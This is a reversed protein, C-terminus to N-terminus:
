LVFSNAINLLLRHCLFPLAFRCHEGRAYGCHCEVVNKITKRSSNLFCLMSVFWTTSKVPKICEAQVQTIHEHGMCKHAGHKSNQDEVGESFIQFWNFLWLTIHKIKWGYSHQYSWIKSFGRHQELFGAGPHPALCLALVAIPRHLSWVRDKAVLRHRTNLIYIYIDEKINRKSSWRSFTYLGGGNTPHVPHVEAQSFKPTM